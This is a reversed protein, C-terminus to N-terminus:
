YLIASPMIPSEMIQVYTKRETKGNKFCAIITNNHYGNSERTKLGNQYRYQLVISIMMLSGKASVFCSKAAM